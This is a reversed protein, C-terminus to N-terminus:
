RVDHQAPLTRCLAAAGSARPGGDGDGDGDGVLREHSRFVGVKVVRHPKM